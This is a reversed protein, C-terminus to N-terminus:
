IPKLKLILKNKVYNRIMLEGNRNIEKFKGGPRDGDKYNQEDFAEDLWMTKQSGHQNGDKYYMELFTGSSWIIKQYGNQNGDRYNKEIVRGHEYKWFFYGKESETKM